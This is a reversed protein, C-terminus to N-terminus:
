SDPAAVDGTGAGSEAEGAGSRAGSTGREADSEAYAEDGSAYPRPRTRRAAILSVKRVLAILVTLLTGGYLWFANVALAPFLGMLHGTFGSEGAGGDSLFALGATFALPAVVPGTIMDAPRVWAAAFAAVLVFACGYVAAEGGLLLQDAGGALVMLLVAFLTCGLATLRARPLWSLSDSLRTPLHPFRPRARYVAATEALPNASSTAAPPRTTSPPRGENRRHPQRDTRGNHQQEM